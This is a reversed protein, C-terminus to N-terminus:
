THSQRIYVDYGAAPRNGSSRCRFLIQRSISGARRRYVLHQLGHRGNMLVGPNSALLEAAYVARVHTLLQPQGQGGPHLLQDTPVVHVADDNGVASVRHFFRRIKQIQGNM